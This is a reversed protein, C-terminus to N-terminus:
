KYYDIKNFKISKGCRIQFEFYLMPRSINRNNFDLLTNVVDKWNKSSHPPAVIIPQMNWSYAGDLHKGSNQSAWNVYYEVQEVTSSDIPDDELEIIRYEVREKILQNITLIDIRQLAVGCAVENGFWIINDGVVTNLSTNIGVNQTFYLQLYVEYARGISIKECIKPLPDLTHKFPVNYPKLTSTLIIRRNTNDWNFGKRYNQNAISKGNNKDRIIDILRQTEYPLLPTCGRKGKLKRYILSWQIDKAYNPLKDLAEWEPVGKSYVEYPKLLTRYILKMSLNPKFGDQGPIHFTIPYQSINAIQFIGYFGGKVKKTGEIYFIVLDGTRVRSIDSLLGIHEDLWIKRKQNYAGTGAFMYQLHMPFTNENVIFVHTTM